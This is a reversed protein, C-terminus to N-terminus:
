SVQRITIIRDHIEDIGTQRQMFNTRMDHISGLETNTNIGIYLKSRTGILSYTYVSSTRGTTFPREDKCFQSTCQLELSDVSHCNTIRM